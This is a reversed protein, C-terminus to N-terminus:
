IWSKLWFISAPWASHTITGYTVPFIAIFGAVTGAILLGFLVPRPKPNAAIIVATIIIAFVLATLYHYLFMVRGIFIFPLLNVIYGTGLFMQSMRSISQEGDASKKQM